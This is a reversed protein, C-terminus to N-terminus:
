HSQQGLATLIRLFHISTCLFQLFLQIGIRHKSNFDVEIFGVCITVAPKVTQPTDVDAIHCVMVATPFFAADRYGKLNQFAHRGGEGVDLHVVPHSPFTRQGLLCYRYFAFQNLYLRPSEHHMHGVAVGILLGRCSIVM